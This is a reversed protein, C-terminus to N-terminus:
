APTNWPISDAAYQLEDEYIGGEEPKETATQM